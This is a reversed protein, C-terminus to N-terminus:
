RFTVEEVLEGLIALTADEQLVPWSAGAHLMVGAKPARIEEIVDGTFPHRVLGLQEGAEVQTGRKDKAMFTLGRRGELKLVTHQDIISVKMEEREPQGALMGL